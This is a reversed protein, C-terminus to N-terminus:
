CRSQRRRSTRKSTTSAISRASTQWTCRATRSPSAARSARTGERDRLTKDAKHDGDTDVVAHVLGAQMSGVFVTGKSGVAMQRANKVGQAWISISFGDPLKITDLRLATSSASRSRTSAVLTIVLVLAAASALRAIRTM